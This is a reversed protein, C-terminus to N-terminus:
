TFKRGNAGFVKQLDQRLWDPFSAVLLYAFGPLLLWNISEDFAVIRDIQDEFPIIPLDILFVFHWCSLIVAVMVGVAINRHSKNQLYFWQSLQPIV